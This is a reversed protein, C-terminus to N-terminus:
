SITTEVNNDRLVVSPDDCHYQLHDHFKRRGNAKASRYATYKFRVRNGDRGTIMMVDTLDSGVIQETKWFRNNVFFSVARRSDLIASGM